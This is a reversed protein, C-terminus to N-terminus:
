GLLGPVSSELQDISVVDGPKLNRDKKKMSGKSPKSRWPTRSANACYCDNCMPPKARQKEMKKLIQTIRQPLMKKNALKTMIVHSVHSLRYHWNMYEQVDDLFTPHEDRADQNTDNLGVQLPISREEKTVGEHEHTIPNTAREEGSDGEHTIPQTTQIDQDELVEKDDTVVPLDDDKEITAPFAIAQHVREHKECEHLYGIIGANTSIIGVNRTMKNIPMTKKVEQNNWELVIADHYTTCHTGRGNEATQAWHQPSLLRSEAKVSYYTNPLIIDHIRGGDDQIRWKVTGVKTQTTQGNFGKIKM